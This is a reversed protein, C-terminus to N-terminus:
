APARYHLDPNSELDHEVVGVLTDILSKELRAYLDDAIDVEGSYTTTTVQRGAEDFGAVWVRRDAAWYMIEVSVNGKIVVAKVPVRHPYMAAELPRVSQCMSPHACYAMNLRSQMVPPLGLHTNVHAATGHGAHHLRALYESRSGEHYGPAIAVPMNVRVDVGCLHGAAYVVGRNM